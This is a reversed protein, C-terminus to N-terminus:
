RFESLGPQETIRTSRPPGTFRDESECTLSIDGGPVAQIEALNQCLAELYGGFNTTRTMEAGLLHDYVQALASVRRAIAKIGRQGDGDPTDSLQRSLMGYILQLNSRVRHQLEQALIKKQDLLRDKEEIAALLTDEASDTIILDDEVILVKLM